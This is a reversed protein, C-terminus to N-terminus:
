RLSKLTALAAERMAGIADDIRNVSREDDSGLGEWNEGWVKQLQAARAPVTGPVV